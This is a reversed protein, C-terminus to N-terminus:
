ECSMRKSLINYDNFKVMLLDYHHRNHYYQTDSVFVKTKAKNHLFILLLFSFKSSILKKWEM